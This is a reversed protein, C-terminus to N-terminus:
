EALTLVACMCTSNHVSFRNPKKIVQILELLKIKLLSVKKLFKYVGYKRTIYYMKSHVFKSFLPTGDKKFFPPNLAPNDVPGLISGYLFNFKTYPTFETNFGQAAALATMGKESFWTLHVPPLDSAWLVRNAYWSRNPTTIILKGEKKLLTKAHAFFRAPDDVHEILEVMLIADYKEDEAVSITFFDENKFHNGYRKTADGIAEESVDIGTVSYGSKALAYTFYGLGCGVELIKGRAPLNRVVGYYAPEQKSLYSLSSRYTVVDKAYQAYRIYGPTDEKNGYIYDYVPTEVKHPFSWKTNCEQCSNIDYFEGEIYGEIRGDNTINQNGCAICINM